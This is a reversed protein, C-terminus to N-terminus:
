QANMEVTLTHPSIRRLQGGVGLRCNVKSSREPVSERVNTSANENHRVEAVPIAPDRLQVRGEVIFDPRLEPSGPLARIWGTTCPDLVSSRELLQNRAANRNSNFVRELPRSGM